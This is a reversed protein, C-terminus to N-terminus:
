EPEQVPADQLLARKRSEFTGTGAAQQGDVVQYGDKGKEYSAVTRCRRQAQEIQRFLEDDSSLSVTVSTSKQQPAHLGYIKIAEKLAELQTKTDPIHTVEVRANQGKGIRTVIPITADLMLILKNTVGKVGDFKSSELHEIAMRRFDSDKKYNYLTQESVNLDAACDKLAEGEVIHKHFFKVQNKLKKTVKSNEM